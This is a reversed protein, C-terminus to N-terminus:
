LITSFVRTRDTIWKELFKNVQFSRTSFCYFTKSKEDRSKDNKRVYTNITHNNNFFSAFCNRRWSLNHSNKGPGDRNKKNPFFKSAHYKYEIPIRLYAEGAPCM